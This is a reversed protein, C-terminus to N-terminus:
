DIDLHSGPKPSNSKCAWSSSSAYKAGALIIDHGYIIKQVSHCILVRCQVTGCIAGIESKGDFDFQLAWYLFCGRRFPFLNKCPARWTIEKCIIGIVTIDYTALLLVTLVGNDCDRKNISLRSVSFFFFCRSPSFENIKLQFTSFNMQCFTNSRLPSIFVYHAPVNSVEIRGWTPLRGPMQVAGSIIGVMFHDGVRFHDGFRGRFSVSGSIIGM